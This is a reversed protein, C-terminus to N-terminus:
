HPKAVARYLSEYREVVIDASFASEARARCARRDISGLRNVADCADEVTEVLFGDIGDRVIEPLAGRPCSIVPTGCALAETFVIGFPEDWQIPVVMAIASKLLSVKQSDDVPGVYEAHGLRIEPEIADRWYAGDDGTDSHNGAIILRRGTRKAIQIAVHAGKIREVRSLFVLPADGPLVDAFEFRETEVFNPIAHWDGGFDRGSRAIFESCATFSLSKGALLNAIRVANRSVRRQYSMIKPTTHFLPLLYALRSFSHVVDPTFTSAARGLQRMNQAHHFITSPLACPWHSHFDAEATSEPHALLGISHGRVRLRSVLSAIIREIGGYHVPPVPLFPDATLLIRV